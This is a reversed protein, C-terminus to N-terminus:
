FEANLIEKATEYGIEILEPIQNMNVRSAGSLNPTILIDAQNTYMRSANTIMFDFTNLLVEVINDPEQIYHHAILDVAIIMDAGFDQLPTIPVNELVGGDVLLHGERKVPAFIGPICTSAMVASAIDGEKLIVKEGNVIDTAIMAAPIQAKEFTIDGLTEKLLKGMKKNSLLGMQPLSIGSVDLWKLRKAIEEIEEWTKGAAVFAAIFAGISTGSVFDVSIDHEQLARLVGVHAAGLVAGGSLALGIRKKRKKFIRM